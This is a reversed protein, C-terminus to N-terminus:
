QVNIRRAKVKEAKPLHLTLIGNEYKAAIHEADIPTPFRFSREYTGYFRERLHYRTGESTDAGVSEAKITLVNAAFDIDINSSLLGPLVAQLTYGETTEALDVLINGADPAYGQRGRPAGKTLQDIVTNMIEAQIDIAENFPKWSTPRSM